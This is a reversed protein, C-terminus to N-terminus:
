VVEYYKDMDVLEVLDTCIYNAQYEKGNSLIRQLSLEKPMNNMYQKGGSISTCIIIETIEKASDEIILPLLSNNKAELELQKM